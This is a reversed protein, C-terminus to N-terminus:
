QAPHEVPAVHITIVHNLFELRFTKSAEKLNAIIMKIIHCYLQREFRDPICSNNIDTNQLLRDVFEAIAADESSLIQTRGRSSLNSGMEIRYFIGKKKVVFTLCFFV